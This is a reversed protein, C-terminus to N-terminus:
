LGDELYKHRSQYSCGPLTSGWVRIPGAISSDAGGCRDQHCRM